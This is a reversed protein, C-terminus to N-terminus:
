AEGHLEPRKGWTKRLVNNECVEIFIECDVGSYVSHPFWKKPMSASNKSCGIDLLSFSETKFCPYYYWLRPLMRPDVM